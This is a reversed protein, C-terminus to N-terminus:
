TNSDQGYKFKMIKRYSKHNLFISIIVSSVCKGEGKGVKLGGMCRERTEKLNMAKQNEVVTSQMWIHMINTFIVQDIKVISNTKM